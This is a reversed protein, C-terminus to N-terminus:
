NLSRGRPFKTLGIGAFMLCVDYESAPALLFAGASAPILCEFRRLYVLPVRFPLGNVSHFYLCFVHHLRRSDFRCLDNFFLSRISETCVRFERLGV